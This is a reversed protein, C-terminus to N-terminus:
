SLSEKLLQRARHLQGKSTGVEVGLTLAIEQHSFGELCFLVLVDRARTPLKAIARELDLDTAPWPPEVDALHELAQDTGVVKLRRRDALALNIAMQKLWGGFREPERLQELKQWAQVFSDQLLDEALGDDGGALRWLLPRMWGAHRRYLGAYAARDGSQAAIVLDRDSDIPAQASSCQTQMGEIIRGSPLLNSYATLVAPGAGPEANFLLVSLREPPLDFSWLFVLVLSLCVVCSQRSPHEM